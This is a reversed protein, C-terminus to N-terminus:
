GGHKLQKIARKKKHELTDKFEWALKNLEVSMWECRDIMEQIHDDIDDNKM